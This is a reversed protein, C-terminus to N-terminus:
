FIVLNGTATEGDENLKKSLDTIVHKKPTGGRYIILAIFIGLGGDPGQDLL